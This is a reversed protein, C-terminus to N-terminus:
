NEERDETKNKKKSLQSLIQMKAFNGLDGGKENSMLAMLMVPNDSFDAIGKQGSLAQFMMVKSIDFDKGGMLAYAM